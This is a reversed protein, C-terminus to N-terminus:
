AAAPGGNRGLRAMRGAQRRVEIGRAELAQPLSGLRHRLHLAGRVGRRDGPEVAGAV